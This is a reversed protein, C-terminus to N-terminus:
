TYKRTHTHTDTWTNTHINKCTHMNTDTQIQTHIHKHVSIYCIQTSNSVLCKHLWIWLHVLHFVVSHFLPWLPLCYPVSSWRVDDAQNHKCLKVLSDNHMLGTMVLKWGCIPKSKARRWKWGKVTRGDTQRGMRGYTWGDMQGETYRGSAAAAAAEEEQDRGNTWANM